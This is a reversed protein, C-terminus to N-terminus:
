TLAVAFALSLSEFEDFLVVEHVTFPLWVMVIFAAYRVVPPVAATDALTDPCDFSIVDDSGETTLRPVPPTAPVPSRGASFGGM